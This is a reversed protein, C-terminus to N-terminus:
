LKQWDRFHKMLDNWLREREQELRNYEKNKNMQYYFLGGIIVITLFVGFGKLFLMLLVSVILTFKNFILPLLDVTKSGKLQSLVNRYQKVIKDCSIINNSADNKPEIKEALTIGTKANESNILEASDFKEKGDEFFRFGSLYYYFQGAAFTRADRLSDEDGTVKVKKIYEKLLTPLENKESYRTVKTMKEEGTTLINYLAIYKGKYVSPNDPSLIIAENFYNLADNYHHADNYIYGALVLSAIEEADRRFEFVKKIATVALDYQANLYYDYAKNYWQIFNIEDQNVEEHSEPRALEADYAQRKDDTSFVEMAEKILDLIRKNSEILDRRSRFHTDKEKLKAQIIGLPLDPQMQLETYYNVLKTM